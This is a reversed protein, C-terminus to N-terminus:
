LMPWWGCRSEDRTSRRAAVSVRPDFLYDFFVLLAPGLSDVDGWRVPYAGGAARKLVERTGIVNCVWALNVRGGVGARFVDGLSDVFDVLCSFVERTVLV